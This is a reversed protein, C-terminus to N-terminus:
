KGAIAFWFLGAVSYKSCGWIFLPSALCQLLCTMDMITLLPHVLRLLPSFLFLFLFLFGSVPSLSLYVSTLRLSDKVLVTAFFDVPRERAVRRLPLREQLCGQTHSHAGYGTGPCAPRPRPGSEGQSPYVFLQPVFVFLTRKRNNSFSLTM